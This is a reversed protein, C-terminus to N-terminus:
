VDFLVTALDDLTAIDGLPFLAAIPEFVDITHHQLLGVAQRRLAHGLAQRPFDAAAPWNCADLFVRLLARDCEFTDRHIQILEYHRDTVMADGWDIIGTLRGNEVFAHNAVLDGHVVVRDFPRLKALYSDIQAVLHPPLSSRAAAASVNAAPWDKETAAGAPRLGHVRRVQRGLEAALSRRDATSLGARWSAVGPMRTTILYPWAADEDDYLRGAALLSPARIEPDTALVDHAALEAAHAERWSPVFGFLKVVVEGYVFTPYTANFGAAPEARAGALAHRELVEAAVPAWFGADGIRSVYGEVSAFVPPATM